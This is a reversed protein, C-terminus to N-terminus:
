KLHEIKTPCIEHRYMVRAEDASTELTDSFHGLTSGFWQDPIADNPLRSKSMLACHLFNIRRDFCMLFLYSKTNLLIKKKRISKFNVNQIQLHGQIMLTM